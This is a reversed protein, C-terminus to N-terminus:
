SVLSPNLQNDPIEPKAKWIHFYWFFPLAIFHFFFILCIWLVKRGDSLSKSKVAVFVFFVMTALMLLMIVIHGLFLLPIIRLLVNRDIAAGAKVLLTMAIFFVATYVIPCVSMLGLLIKKGVSFAM